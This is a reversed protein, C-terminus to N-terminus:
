EKEQEELKQIADDFMAMVDDHTGRDNTEVVSGFKGSVNLIEWLYQCSVDERRAALRLAGIACFCVADDSYTSVRNGTENRAFEGQTWRAPSAILSKANALVQSSKM